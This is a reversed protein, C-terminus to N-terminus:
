AHDGLGQECVIGRSRAESNIKIHGINIVCYQSQRYMDRCAKNYRLVAASILLETASWLKTYKMECEVASDIDELM